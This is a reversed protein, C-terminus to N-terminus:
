YAIGVRAKVFDRSYIQKYAFEATDQVTISKGDEPLFEHDIRYNGYKTGDTLYTPCVITWDLDSSKLLEYAQHHDEAAITSKRKSEPSHYRLFRSDNRSQLIGATGISILRKVSHKKMNEIILPMAKSLTNNGNTNLASIVVDVGKIAKFLDDNNLVNGLFVTLNDSILLPIFDTRVFAIIEKKDKLGEKVIHNGVRGSAGLVLIRM